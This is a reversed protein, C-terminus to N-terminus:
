ATINITSGVTQGNLNVSPAPSKVAAVADDSDGDNAPAQTARQTASTSAQQQLAALLLNTSSSVSSISM